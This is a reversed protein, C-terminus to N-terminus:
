LEKFTQQRYKRVGSRRDKKENQLERYNRGLREIEKVPTHWGDSLHRFFPEKDAAKHYTGGAVHRTGLGGRRINKWESEFLAKAKAMLLNYTSYLTEDRSWRKVEEQVLLPGTDIGADIQHITIGKPTDDFWSWFNPDSGRNWPLLSIHINVVNGKMYDLYQSNLINRYGFSVAFDHQLDTDGIWGNGQFYLPVDGAEELAHILMEPYPSLLLVKM